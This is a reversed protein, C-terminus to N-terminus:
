HNIMSWLAWSAPDKRVIIAPKDIKIQSNCLDSLSYAYVVEVDKLREPKVAAWLDLAVKHGTHTELLQRDKNRDRFLKRASIGGRYSKGLRKSVFSLQADDRGYVYKRSQCAVRNNIQPILARM